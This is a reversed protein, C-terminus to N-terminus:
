KSVSKVSVRVQFSWTTGAKVEGRIPYAALLYEETGWKRHDVLGMPASSEIAIIKAPAEFTITKESPLLEVAGLKEPLALAVRPTRATAGQFDPVPLSFYHRWFRFELNSKATFQFGLSFEDGPGAELTEQYDIAETGAQLLTGRFTLASRGDDSRVAPPEAKGPALSKHDPTQAVPWGGRFLTKGGWLINQPSGDSAIRLDLGGPTQVAYLGNGLEAARVAKPPSLTVRPPPDEGGSAPDDTPVLIRGDLMRVTFQKAVRGSSVDRYNRDLQVTADYMSGNVVVKGGEFDRRWTGDPLKSAPGKPYGLPADYEPFWWWDGRGMNACDYGFYGDGMLTTTLGFRLAQPDSHQLAKRQEVRQKWPIKHTEFPDMPMNRPHGVLMTVAPKRSERCWRLYRGLFDEFDVKGEMVRNFEDEALCGNLTAFGTRPLNWDNIMVIAKGDRLAATKPCLTDEVHWCDYFVGDFCSRKLIEDRVKVLNYELVEPLKTNIRYYGPWGEWRKGEQNLDWWTEPLKPNDIGEIVDVYPLVIVQPNIKRLKALNEETRTLTKSWDRSDWDYHLDYCGGVILRLKSWYEGGEEWSRYGLNAGYCTGIRPFPPGSPNPEAAPAPTALALIAAIPVFCSASRLPANKM